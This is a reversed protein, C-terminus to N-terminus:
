KRAFYRTSLTVLKEGNHSLTARIDGMFYPKKDRDKRTTTEVTNVEIELPTDPPILRRPKISIKRVLTRTTYGVQDAIIHAANWVAFCFDGVNVHPNPLYKDTRSEISPNGKSTFNVTGTFTYMGDAQM